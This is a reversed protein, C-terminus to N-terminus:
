AYVTEGRHLRLAITATQLRERQTPAHAALFRAAAVLMLHGAPTNGLDRHQQIAGELMQFSHFDADERVLAIVLTRYLQEAAHGARLYQYVMTGAADVQQQTDLLELFRHPFTKASIGPPTAEHEAALPAPPVNLFRDLYVRMAGHFVGRLIETSVTRKLAQYLANSYTFTHLVAIWDSFENHTHFHVIRRCAAMVLAQALALPTAGNRLSNCLAIIIEQPSDGLLTEVLMDRGHWEKDQGAKLLDPLAACADHVLPVLDVPHRWANREESREAMTLHGLVSPLVTGAHEWGIHQLLEFSKNIFDLTHGGDLYFHDTAAAMLMETMETPSAGLALATLVCREAGDRDRVEVWRRLWRKLTVRSVRETALPQLLVQPPTNSCDNAVHLVGQYLPVIREEAPLHQLLNGMATLITMGSSWGAQRYQIGYLGAQALLSAPAAGSDLLGIVAKAQVLRLNQEMGQRLRHQWREMGSEDRSRLTVWVEGDTIEVPYSPVDDAWLDFTCGSALDFRAHHWHCTLIGDHTSGRHLPFGMHPCRNDVAYIQDQHYFVALPRDGGSVVLTGQQKVEDVTGARIRPVRHHMDQGGQFRQQQLIIRCCGAVLWVQYGYMM